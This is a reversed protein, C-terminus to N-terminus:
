AGNLRAFWEDCIPPVRQRKVEIIQEQCASPPPLQPARLGKGGNRALVYLHHWLLRAPVPAHHHGNSRVICGRKTSWDRPQRQRHQRCQCPPVASEKKYSRALLDQFNQRSDPGAAEHIGPGTDLIRIVCGTKRGTTALVHIRTAPPNHIIANNILNNVIRELYQANCWVNFYFDGKLAFQSGWNKAMETFPLELEELMAHLAVSAFISQERHVTARRVGRLCALWDATKSNLSIIENLLKRQQESRPTEIAREAYANANM